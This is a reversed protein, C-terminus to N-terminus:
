ARTGIPCDGTRGRVGDLLGRVMYRVNRGRPGVLVSFIFFKALVRPLDQAIWVRPTYPLRYLRLRNRMIFYLRTPGHRVVSHMGALVPVRDDGLRHEMRAACVGFLALGKGRARFSWEMDVNDIFLGEDMAGVEDLVDIPILAGSSILFDAEVAAQEPGCWLKTSMPFAIRVFPADRDERPDHFVPGVAAVRRTRSLEDLAAALRSVMDPAPVSDQDLILVTSSGARRAWEIGANQAAALGVNHLQSLVVADGIERVAGLHTGGDGTNDVIVVHRVQPRVAALERRLVDPDPRYTVVIACVGDAATM